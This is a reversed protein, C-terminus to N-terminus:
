VGDRLGALERGDFSRSQVPQRHPGQLLGPLGREQRHDQPRGVRGHLPVGARQQGDHPDPLPAAAPRVPVDADARRRRQGRRHEAQVRQGELVAGRDRGPAAHVGEAARVGRLEAGRVARHVADDAVRRPVAGGGPGGRPIDTQAPALDRTAPEHQARPRAEPKGPKSDPDLAAHAGPGAPVDGRRQLRWM